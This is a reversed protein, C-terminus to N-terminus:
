NTAAPVTRKEQRMALLQRVVDAGAPVVSPQEVWELCHAQLPESLALLVRMLDGTRCAESPLMGIRPCQRALFCGDCAVAEDIRLHARLRKAANSVKSMTNPCSGGVLSVLPPRPLERLVHNNRRAFAMLGRKREGYALSARAMSGGAVTGPVAPALAGSAGGDGDDDGDDGESAGGEAGGEAGSEKGLYGDEKLSALLQQWLPTFDALLSAARAVEEQTPPPIDREEERSIVNKRGSFPRGSPGRVGGSREREVRRREYGDRVGELSEWKGRRWRGEGGERAYRPYGGRDGELSRYGGERERFGGDWPASRPGELADGRERWAGAARGGSERGGRGREGEGRDGVGREREGRAGTRGRPSGERADGWSAEGRGRVVRGEGWAAGERTAAGERWAGSPPGRREGGLWVPAGGWEGAEDEARVDGAARVSPRGRREREGDGRGGVEDGGDEFRARRGQYRSADAGREDSSYEARPSFSSGARPRGDERRSGERDPYERGARDVVPRVERAIYGREGRGRAGSDLDSSDDDYDRIDRRGGESFRPGGPGARQQRRPYSARQDPFEADDRPPRSFAGRAYSSGAEEPDDRRRYGRRTGRGRFSETGDDAEAESKERIAGLDVWGQEKRGRREDRRSWTDSNERDESREGRRSDYRDNPDRSASYRGIARGADNGWYRGRSRRSGPTDENM